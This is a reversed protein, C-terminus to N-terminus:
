AKACVRSEIDCRLVAAGGRDHFTATWETTAGKRELVLFGFGVGGWLRGDRNFLKATREKTIDMGLVEPDDLADGTAGIVLQAPETKGAMFAEFAHVHGSLVLAPGAVLPRLASLPDVMNKFVDRAPESLSAVGSREIADHLEAISDTESATDGNTRLNSGGWLPQHLLVWRWTAQPMTKDASDTLAKFNAAYAAAREFRGYDDEAHATDLVQLVVDGFSLAYGFPYTSAKTSGDAQCARAPTVDSPPALLFFWGVGARQCDEHNGRVMVWPALRLLSAAPQFFDESWAGWSDGYPSAGCRDPQTCPSERYHYDGVHVILDPRPMAAAVQAIVKFPWEKDRMCDQAARYYVIRCGTDGIVLVRNLQRPRAPLVHGAVQVTAGSDYSLECVVVPFAAPAVSRRAVMPREQGDLVLMPCPANAPVISRVTSRREGPKEGTLQVWTYPEAVTAAAVVAPASRPTTFADFAQILGLMVVMSAIFMGTGVAASQWYWREPLYRWQGVIWALGAGVAAAVAIIVLVRSAAASPELAILLAAGVVGLVAAILIWPLAPIRPNNDM